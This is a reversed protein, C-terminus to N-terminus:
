ESYMCISSLKAYFFYKFYSTILIQKKTFNQKKTCLDVSSIYNDEIIEFNYLINSKLLIIANWCKKSNKATIELFLVSDEFKTRAKSSM